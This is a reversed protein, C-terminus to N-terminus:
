KPSECGNPEWVGFHIEDEVRKIEGEDRNEFIQKM